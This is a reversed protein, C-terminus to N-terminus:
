IFALILTAFAYPVLRYLLATAYNPCIPTTLGVREGYAKIGFLVAILLYQNNSQGVREERGEGQKDRAVIILKSLKIEDNENSINDRDMLIRLPEFM